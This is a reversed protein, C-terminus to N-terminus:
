DDCILYSIIINYDTIGHTNQALVTTCLYTCYIITRLHPSSTHKSFANNDTENKHETFTHFTNLLKTFYDSLFIKFYISKTGNTNFHCKSINYTLFLINIILFFNKFSSETNTLKLQKKKTNNQFM